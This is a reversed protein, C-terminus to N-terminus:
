PRMATAVTDAAKITADQLTKVEPSFLSPVLLLADESSLELAGLKATSAGVEKDSASGDPNLAACYKKGASAPSLSGVLLCNTTAPASSASWYAAACAATSDPAGISMIPSPSVPSFAFAWIRSNAGSSITCYPISKFSSGASASDSAFILSGSSLSSELAAGLERASKAPCSLGLSPLSAAGCTSTADPVFTACTADARAAPAGTCTRAAASGRAVESEMAATAAPLATANPSPKPLWSSNSAWTFSAALPSSGPPPPSTNGPRRM